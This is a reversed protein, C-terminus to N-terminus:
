GDASSFKPSHSEDRGERVKLLHTKSPKPGERQYLFPMHNKVHGEESKLKSKTRAQIKVGYKEKKRRCKWDHIKRNRPQRSCNITEKSKNNRYIFPKKYTANTSSTALM